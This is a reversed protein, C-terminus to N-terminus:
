SCKSFEPLVIRSENYLNFDSCYNVKKVNWGSLNLKFSSSKQTSTDFMSTMDTVNSVNWNSIDGLKVTKASWSFGSFMAVMTKVSKTDWATYTRGNVTVVKKSLDGVSVTNTTRMAFDCLMWSMDEVNQTDFNSLDISVTSTVGYAASCFMNSMNKVKSTNWNKLGDISFSSANSGANYFMYSMNTVSSTDLKALDFSSCTLFNKFWYATSVPKIEDHVIVKRVNTKISNWPATSGGQSGLEDRMVVYSEIEFGTYVATVHLNNYKTNVQPIDTRKYFRLSNDDKSYIAFAINSKWIAYLTVSANIAYSGGASYIASTANSETAWGLFIYGSKNPKDSSLTLDVGYTKTQSAPADTGGNADYKITYTNKEWVAYLDMNETKIYENFRYKDIYEVDLSDDITSWGLFTYGERKFANKGLTCEEKYECETDDMVGSGGNAHYRILYKNQYYKFNYCLGIYESDEDIILKKKNLVKTNIDRELYIYNNRSVNRDDDIKSDVVNNDLYGTDILDGVTFCFYESNMDDTLEWELDYINEIAYGYSVEEINNITISYTKDKTNRIVVSIGYISLSLILALFIIVTMLEILTFGNNKKKM